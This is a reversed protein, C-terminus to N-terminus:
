VSPPSYRFFIGREAGSATGSNGVEISISTLLDSNADTGADLEVTKPATEGPAFTLLMPYFPGSSSNTARVIVSGGNTWTTLPGVEVRLRTAHVYALPPPSLITIIDNYAM